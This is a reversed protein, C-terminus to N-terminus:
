GCYNCYHHAVNVQIIYKDDTVHIMDRCRDLAMYLMNAAVLQTRPLIGSTYIGVLENILIREHACEMLTQFHAWSLYYSRFDLKMLISIKWLYKLFSVKTYGIELLDLTVIKESESHM